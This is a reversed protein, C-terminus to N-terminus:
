ESLTSYSRQDEYRIIPEGDHAGGYMPGLLGHFKPQGRLEQRLHDGGVKGTPEFGRIAFAAEPDDTHFKATIFQDHEDMTVIEFITM